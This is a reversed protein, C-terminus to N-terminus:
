LCQAISGSCVPLENSLLGEPNQVQWLHLGAPPATTATIVVAGTTCFPSFSGGSCTVSGGVPQGDIFVVAAGRVDLGTAAVAPSGSTAVVPTTATSLVPQPLSALDGVQARLEATLTLLVSGSQAQTILDARTFAFGTSTQYVGTSRFSVAFNTNANRRGEGRLNVVGALDAAELEAVIAETAALSGAGTTVSNLTVQRGIAGGYGTSAEEVM